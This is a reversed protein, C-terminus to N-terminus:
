EFKPSKEFHSLSVTIKYCIYIYIYIYIPLSKIPTTTIFSVNLMLMNHKFFIHKNMKEYLIDCIKASRSCGIIAVEPGHQLNNKMNSSRDSRNWWAHSWSQCTGVEPHIMPLLYNTEIGESCEDAIINM